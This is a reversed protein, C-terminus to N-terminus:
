AAGARPARPRTPTKRDGRALARLKKVEDRTLERWQGVALRSLRLPGLGVRTLKKVALGSALLVEQIPRLRSEVLAVELTTKGGREDLVRVHLPSLTRKRKGPAPGPGLRTRLERRAEHAKFKALEKARRQITLLDEERLRGKVLVHYTKEVAFSPHSLRHALGGDNTLLVLGTTEFDLRGVPFLRKALPHDVLGLVTRRDMGVEDRATVLTRGPKNLMVHIRRERRPVPRGDVEIRDADPDAFAPLARVVSGNVRVRGQAILEECARRAAVGADALIRQLREGRPPSPADTVPRRPV